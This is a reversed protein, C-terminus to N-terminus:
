WFTKSASVTSLISTTMLVTTISWLKRTCYSWTMSQRLALDGKILLYSKIWSTMQSILLCSETRSQTVKRAHAVIAAQHSNTAATRPAVVTSLSPQQHAIKPLSANPTTALKRASPLYRWLTTKMKLTSSGKRRMWRQPPSHAVLVIVVLARTQHDM